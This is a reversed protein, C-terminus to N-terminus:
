VGTTRNQKPRNPHYKFTHATHPHWTRLCDVKGLGSEALYRITLATTPKLEESTLVLDCMNIIQEFYMRISAKADEHDM